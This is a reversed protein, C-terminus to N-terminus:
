YRGILHHPNGSVLAAIFLALLVLGIIQFALMQFKEQAM